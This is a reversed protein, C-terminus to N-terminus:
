HYHKKEEESPYIGEYESVDYEQGCRECKIRRYGEQLPNKPAPSPSPASAAREWCRGTTAGWPRAAILSGLGMSAAVGLLTLTIKKPRNM